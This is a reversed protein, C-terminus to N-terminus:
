KVTNSFHTTQLPFTWCVGCHEEYIIRDKRCILIKVGLGWLLVDLSGASKKFTVTIKPVTICFSFLCKSLHFSLLGSPVTLDKTEHGSQALKGFLFTQKKQKIKLLSIELCKKEKFYAALSGIM